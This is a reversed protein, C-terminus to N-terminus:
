ISIIPINKFKSAMTSFGSNSASCIQESNTMLYFETVADLTQKDTTNSLSTHGIDCNLIVVNNFKNKIKLKYTQNDCFFIINKNCNDNIFHFLKSENYMRTDHKVLVFSHDTELYKDGLRLHISIYNIVNNVNLRYGNLKVDDSFKFVEQCPMTITANNYINYFLCPTVINYIGDKINAVDHTKCRFSDLITSQEIYMKDYKLTLYKELLNNNILYYLKINYKMCLNLTHMFFKICDGIGGDGQKFDYVIIKTFSDYKNIYDEM